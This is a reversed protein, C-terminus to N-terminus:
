RRWQGQQVPTEWGTQQDLQVQGILSLALQGDRAVECRGVRREAHGGIWTGPGGDAAHSTWTNGRKARVGEGVLVTQGKEEQDDLLCLDLEACKAEMSTQAWM